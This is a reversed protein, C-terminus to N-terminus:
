VLQFCHLSPTDVVAVEDSTSPFMGRRNCQQAMPVRHEPNGQSLGVSCDRIGMQLANNPTREQCRYHYINNLCTSTVVVRFHTGNTM